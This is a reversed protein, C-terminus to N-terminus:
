PIDGEMVELRDYYDPLEKLHAWAIKATMVPDNDTVNTEPDRSGHELEVSLGKHFQELDIETFDMGIKEGLIKAQHVTFPNGTTRTKHMYKEKHKTAIAHYAVETTPIVRSRRKKGTPLGTPLLYGQWADEGVALELHLQDSLKPENDVDYLRYEGLALVTDAQPPNHAAVLIEGIGGANIWAYIVGDLVLVKTQAKTELLEYRGTELLRIM